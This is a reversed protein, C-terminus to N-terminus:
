ATLQSRSMGSSPVMTVADIEPSDRSRLMEGAILAKAWCAPLRMAALTYKSIAALYASFTSPSTIWRAVTAPQLSV